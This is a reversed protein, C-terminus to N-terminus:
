LVIDAEYAYVIECEEDDDQTEKLECVMLSDADQLSDFVEEPIKDISIGDQDNRQLIASMDDSNIEIVADKPESNRAYLLLMVEDESNVIFDYTNNM